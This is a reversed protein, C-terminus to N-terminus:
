KEIQNIISNIFNAVENYDEKEKLWGWHIRLQNRIRKQILIIQPKM